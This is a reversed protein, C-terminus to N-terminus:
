LTIVFKLTVNKEKCCYWNQTEDFKTKFLMNRGFISAENGAVPLIQFFSIVVMFVKIEPGNVVLCINNVETFKM